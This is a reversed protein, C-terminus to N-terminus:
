NNWLAWMKTSSTPKIRHELPHLWVRWHDPQSFLRTWQGLFGQFISSILFLGVEGGNNWYESSSCAQPSQSPDDCSHGAPCSSCFSAATGSHTGLPCAHCIGVGSPSYTGPACETPPIPISGNVCSHGAPCVQCASAGGLSYRGDPCKQQFFADFTLNFLPIVQNSCFAGDVSHWHSSNSFPPKVWYNRWINEM